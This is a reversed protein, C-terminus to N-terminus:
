KKETNAKAKEQTKKDAKRVKEPKKIKAKKEVKSEPAEKCQIKKVNAKKTCDIPKTDAACAGIAFAATLFAILFKKM